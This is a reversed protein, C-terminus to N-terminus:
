AAITLLETSGAELHSRLLYKLARRLTATLIQIQKGPISMASWKADREPTGEVVPGQRM